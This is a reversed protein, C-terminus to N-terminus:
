TDGPTALDNLPWWVPDRALTHKSGTLPQVLVREGEEQVARVVGVRSSRVNQVRDGVKPM